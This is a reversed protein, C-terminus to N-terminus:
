TVDNVVRFPPEPLLREPFVEVEGFADDAALLHDFCVLITGVQRTVPQLANATLHNGCDGVHAIGFINPVGVVAGVGVFQRHERLQSTGDPVLRMVM